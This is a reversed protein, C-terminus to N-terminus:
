IINLSGARVACYVSRKEIILVAVKFIKSKGSCSVGGYKEKLNLFISRNDRLKEM